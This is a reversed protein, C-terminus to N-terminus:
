TLTPAGQATALEVQRELRSIVDRLSNEVTLQKM